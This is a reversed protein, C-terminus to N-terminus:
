ALELEKEQEKEKLYYQLQLEPALKSVFSPMSPMEVASAAESPVGKEILWTQMDTKTM